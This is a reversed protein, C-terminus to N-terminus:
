MKLHQCFFVSFIEPRRQPSDSTVKRSLVEGCHDFILMGSQLEKLPDM